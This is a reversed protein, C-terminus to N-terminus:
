ARRCELKLIFEVAVNFKVSQSVQSRKNPELPSTNKTYREMVCYKIMKCAQIQFMVAMM